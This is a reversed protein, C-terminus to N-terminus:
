LLYNELNISQQITLVIVWHYLQLTLFMDRSLVHVHWFCVVLEVTDRSRSQNIGFEIVVDSSNSLSQTIIIVHHQELLSNWTEFLYASRLKTLVKIGVRIVRKQIGM